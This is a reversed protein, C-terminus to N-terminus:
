GIQKIATEGWKQSETFCCFFLSFYIFIAGRGRAPAVASLMVVSPMIANLIITFNVCDASSPTMRLTTIGQIKALCIYASM